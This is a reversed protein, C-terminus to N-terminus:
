RGRSRATKVWGGRRFVMRGLARWAATYAIYSGPLLLQGFFFGKLRGCDEARRFHLYGCAFNPCFSFAYWMLM